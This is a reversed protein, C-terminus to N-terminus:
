RTQSKAPNTMKFSLETALMTSAIIDGAAVNEAHTLALLTTRRKRVLCCVAISHSGCINRRPTKRAVLIHYVVANSCGRSRGLRQLHPRSLLVKKM